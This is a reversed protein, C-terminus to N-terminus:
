QALAGTARDFRRIWGPEFAVGVAEGTAPTAVSRPIRALLDGRNTRVRILSDAGTSECSVIIGRLPAAADIRVHEPRVGIIEMDDELLNMPPSGLFRAVQVNAPFDYVEHPAACQVIRGDIMIALRDAISLAELHDHTVHVAPGTFTTRFANFRLRVQARLQPDLHALPEDLLLVRPDSLLARALAARQREGGSLRAPREHLHAGIDLANAIDRIRSEAVGLGHGRMRLSFALNDHVSMHPFLSDDQFVVAIRRERAELPLLDRGDLLLTGADAAELGAIVRLLSTKGAGSPGLIVLTEGNAVELCVGRVRRAKTLDAAFLAASQNGSASSRRSSGAAARVPM